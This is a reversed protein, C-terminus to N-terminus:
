QTPRERMDKQNSLGVQALVKMVRKSIERKPTQTVRLVFALNDFVNRDRLLRFDQFVVGLQRRLYPIDKRKTESAKFEGVIVEGETPPADMYILKLLTSKGAGSKGLLYVFEGPEMRLSIDSVSERGDYAVTTNIFEIM